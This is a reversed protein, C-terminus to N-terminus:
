VDEVLLVHIFHEMLVVYSLLVYSCYVRLMTHNCFHFPQCQKWALIEKEKLTPVPQIQYGLSVAGLYVVKGDSM